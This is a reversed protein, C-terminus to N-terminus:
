KISEHFEAMTTCVSVKHGLKEAWAKMQTQVPSLKGGKRKAEVFFVRGGDALITFDFEGLTRMARHAMSGHLAIWGHSACFERIQDHLGSEREVPDGRWGSLTQRTAACESDLKALDYNRVAAIRQNHLLVDSERWNSFPNMKEKELTYTARTSALTGSKRRPTHHTVWSSRIRIANGDSGNYRIIESLM